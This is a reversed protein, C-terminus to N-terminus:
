VIKSSNTNENIDKGTLQRYFDLYANRVRDKVDEPINVTESNISDDYINEVNERLWVRIVDKDFRDPEEGKEFRERDTDLKWYRSSDPTHLEDAIVIQNTEADRGFEYKTDVLILGKERAVGQGFEFLEIAKQSVYVWEDETMLGREIIQAPSIPEDHDDSKTTPTVIPIPLEQNKRLGDSFEIGCYKRVGRNYVTWLSTNTTGTIYGRVVVEVPFIKCRRVVMTRPSLKPVSIKHNPIIHSTRDFWWESTKNLVKGKDPIFCWVKDFASIRDTTSINLTYDDIEVLNRIKGYHFKQM